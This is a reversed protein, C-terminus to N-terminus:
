AVKRYDVMDYGSLSRTVADPFRARVEDSMAGVRVREDGEFRFRYLPLGSPMAGVREIDRKLRRDSFMLALSAVGMGIDGAGTHQKERGTQTGGLGGFGQVISNYNQLNQWPLNQYYDFQSRQDDIAKQEFGAGWDAFQGALSGPMMGAQMISPFMSLGQLQQAGQGQLFDGYMGLGTQQATLARNREAETLVSANQSMREGIEPLVRNLTKIGGTPNGLFTARNNLGPLIDQEFQRMIPANAADISGQLGSYDPAGSLMKSLAGGAAGAAGGTLGGFGGGGLASGLADTAQGFKPAAQGGFVSDAYDFSNGWAGIQGQTPGAFTQGPYMEPGGSRYLQQAQGMIDKLFPQSPGWPESVQKTSGGGKSM